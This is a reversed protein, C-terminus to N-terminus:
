SSTSLDLAALDAVERKSIGLRVGDDVGTVADIPIAVRQAGWLHGQDLLIHTVCHDSADVVLGQVHGIPGDIADVPEGRVPAPGVQVRGTGRPRSSQVEDAPELAAFGLPGCRLTVEGDGASAVLGVPVLRAAGRRHHPEVVLHTVARAVPDIVVRRLHGLEGQDCRVKADVVFEALSTEMANGM